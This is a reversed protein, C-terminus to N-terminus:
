RNEEKEFIRLKASKAKLERVGLCVEKEEAMGGDGAPLKVRPQPLLAYKHPM